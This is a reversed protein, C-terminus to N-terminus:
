YHHGERQEGAASARRRAAQRERQRGLERPHLRLAGVERELLESGPQAARRAPSASPTTAPDSPAKRACRSSSSGSSTSGAAPASRSARV